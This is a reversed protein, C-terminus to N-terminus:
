RGRGECKSSPTSRSYQGESSLSPTDRTRSRWVLTTKAGAQPTARPAETGTLATSSPARCAAQTKPAMWQAGPAGPTSTSSRPFTSETDNEYLRDRGTGRGKSAKAARAEAQSHSATQTEGVLVETSRAAAEQLDQLQTNM